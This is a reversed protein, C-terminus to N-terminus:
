THDHGLSCTCDAWNTLIPDGTTLDVAFRCHHGAPRNPRPGAPDPGPDPPPPPPPQKRRRIM